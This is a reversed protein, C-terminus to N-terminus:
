YSHISETDSLLLKIFNLRYTSKRKHREDPIKTTTVAAAAAIM